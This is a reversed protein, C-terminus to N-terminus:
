PEVERRQSAEHPQWELVSLSHAALRHAEGRVSRPPGDCATHVVELWRGAVPREPLRFTRTCADGNIAVLVSRAPQPRADEDVPEALNADLWLAFCHEDAEEWDEVRMPAGDRRYWAVRGEDDGDLHIRRRFVANDRRLAFCQRVFDLFARDAAHLDWSWWTTEDDLCYANNNGHQTRGIEDGGLWMPVGHSIALMAALNRKARERARRIHRDHTPGEVGWNYSADNPGDHNAERNAENHRRAHSV